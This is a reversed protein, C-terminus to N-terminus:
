RATTSPASNSVPRVVRQRRGRSRRVTDVDLDVVKVDPWAIPSMNSGILWVGPGAGITTSCRADRQGGGARLAVTYERVM